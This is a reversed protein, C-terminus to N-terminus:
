MEGESWDGDGIVCDLDGIFEADELEAVPELEVGDGDDSSADGDEDKDVLERIGQPAKRCTWLRDVPPPTSIKSWDMAGVPVPISALDHEWMRM